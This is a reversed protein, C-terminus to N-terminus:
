GEDGDDDMDDDMDDMDDDMDDMDDDDMDHMDDDDMDHMDDDDMDHMDDDDMDHMDDDMGDMDDDMDHMDDDDMDHMDDDMDHMDDDDMGDMDDDMDHMDDDMDHMDDMMGGAMGIEMFEGNQVQYFSVPTTICEGSGDCNIPGTVGAYGQLSRVYDLLAARNVVLNGEDDVMGVAEIGMLFINYADFANTHFSAPPQENFVEEYEETLMTAMESSVPRPTSAYVGEAAEGALEILEPGYIGDAGMFPVEELGVDARQQILRAGEAPFCGCYVLDPETAAIESLLAQFSTDGVTIADAAVIEGGLGEFYETLVAVLGEGYASGDHITAIQRAGMENYIYEAAFRGNNADSPVVRNFSAFGKTTLDAATCSPSITTFGAGDYIPAAPECASSCMPGVVGVVNPDSTFRTAVAVGGEANCQSDQPDLAVSWESDGVRVMNHAMHGLMVGNRINNGFPALGEGSFAASIGIVIENGPAIRVEEGQGWATGGLPLMAFILLGISIPRIIRKM